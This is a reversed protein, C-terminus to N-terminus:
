DAPEGDAKDAKPVRPPMLGLTDVKAAYDPIQAAYRRLMKKLAAVQRPSLGKKRTFQQSLSTFFEKDDWTKKGRQVAPAWQTIGAALEIIAALHPDQPGEQVVVGLEQRLKEADPLQEVYKGFMRDLVRLQSESLGKNQNAQETLSDIFKRDDYEKKGFKRPPDCQVGALLSLKRRTADDPPRTVQELLRAQDRLGHSDIAADLMPLQEKYRMAMKLLAELQRDTIAKEGKELQESVSKVFAEDGPKARGRAPKPPPPQWTKVHTLLELLGRVKGLDAPPGKAHVVWVAFRGYFDRMMQQWQVRGEEVEDLQTEMTATFKVDFLEPLHGVLFDNVQFGMNTPKLQRRDKEVYLRSVIVTITSAYTSPRGVGHSELARILSAETYRPPPQTEKRAELWERPEVPEGEALPPLRAPPAEDDHGETKREEDKEEEIGTVRMYGPFIVDSASARFTYTTTKGAPPPAVFEATRIGVRAPSMQSSVFREWILKYLKFEEDSVYPRLMDPTKHVDTPRIAEHAEQASGRSKYVPPRDPLYETGYATAIFERAAQAAVPSIAFSDTRMYTILGVAGEGLDVGEYLKQAIKMTRNPPFSFVSSAAQQLTSTIFSPRPRKTIERRTISSVRMERGDLDSKIAHAREGSKVEAKEGDIKSLRVEFLDRPDEFKRVMAGLLWYEEPKFNLVERERECVLRLAVSQVRGASSAGRIRRWLLPSVQYGVIRDLVRRAQQSDVKNVDIARPKAFAERIAPATIENYTVRCFRDDAGKKKLAALLHWAIAEGERDPDPALYIKEATEAIGKLEKLVKARTSITVYKPTFDGELDVGIEKEPLDRVHGMSAKVIFDKGLIKNITKAKAPSEVIVLNSAM